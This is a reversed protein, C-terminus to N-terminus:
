KLFLSIGSFLLLIYTIIIFLRQNMKRYLLSGIAMALFLVPLATLQVGLLRLTWDGAIIQTILLIGNLFIWITSLTARFAEKQRLRDALYIILLPGGCVFLGHVIGALALSGYALVSPLRKPKGDSRILFTEIIGKIALALVIGGLIYYLTRQEGALLSRLAAGLLMAPIMVVLARILEHRDVWKRNGLWVYIGSALGLGNLVPVATGMGVLRLSLPMALLTGAFGTIGQIIHTLFITLYFLLYEM